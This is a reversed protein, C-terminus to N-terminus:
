GHVTRGTGATVDVKADLGDLGKSVAVEILEPEIKKTCVIPLHISQSDSSEQYKLVAMRSRFRVLGPVQYLVALYFQPKKRKSFNIRTNVDAVGARVVTKLTFAILSIEGSQITASKPSVEICSCNPEVSGFQLDNVLPNKLRVQVSVRDKLDLAGLQLEAWPRGFGDLQLVSDLTFEHM